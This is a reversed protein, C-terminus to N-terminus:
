PLGQPRKQMYYNEIVSLRDIYRRQFKFDPYRIIEGRLSAIHPSIDIGYNNKGTKDADHIVLVCYYTVLVRLASPRRFLYARGGTTNIFFGAYMYLDEMSPRLGEPDPCKDYLMLWKYFMELEIELTDQENRIAERILRLDKSNLVRFFHYINRTIIEPDSGEGAPVPPSASLTKLIQKFRPYTHTELGMHQVYPQGDLYRFFEVVTTETRSCPNEETFAERSASDEATVNIDAAEKEGALGPQEESPAATEIPYHKEQEQRSQIFWYVGLCTLIVLLVLLGIRHKAKKTM